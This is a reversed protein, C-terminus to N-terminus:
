GLKRIQNLILVANFALVGVTFVVGTTISVFPFAQKEEVLGQSSLLQGVLENTQWVGLIGVVFLVLLFAAFYILLNAGIATHRYGLEILLRIDEAAEALILRFNMTFMIFALTMFIIGLGAAFSMLTNLIQGSRGLKIREQDSTLRNQDMFKQIAPDSVSNVQLVVRSPSKPREKGIHLNAWELFSHPVLVSSVRETFGVINGEFVQEGGPGQVVVDFPVMKVAERSVQPLNQSLAFGFNYLNLFDQSVIIPVRSQGERWYFDPNPTELFGPDISEFFVMTYFNLYRRARVSAKFQNSSLFSMKKVFPAAKLAKIESESFGSTTLGLTNVLSIKKNLILFEGKDKQSVLVKNVKLYAELATLMIVLGLLFALGALLFQWKSRRLWLIRTLLLNMLPVPPFLVAFLHITCTHTSLQSLAPFHSRFSSGPKCNSGGGMGKKEGIGLKLFLLGVADM